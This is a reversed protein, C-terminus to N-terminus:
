VLYKKNGTIAYADAFVENMGGHETWLMRQMQETNLGAVESDAWDCLKILVVKARANGALLYADRLGAYLKHLNYWPVWKQNFDSLDGTKLQAWMANGGPVGGVYGNGNKEQCRALEDVMYDLRRKCELDGASAYMQALATLYHGGTHGDLGSSEWNPYSKAKPELGAERLYPALLRDPEMKLMYNLDVEQAQKFPSELLRVDSLKFLRMQSEQACLSSASLMLVAVIKVTAITNNKM